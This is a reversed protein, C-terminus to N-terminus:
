SAPNVKYTKKGKLGRAELLEKGNAKKLMERLRNIGVKMGREKLAKFIKEVGQDGIEELINVVEEIIEEEEGVEVGQYLLSIEEDNAEM